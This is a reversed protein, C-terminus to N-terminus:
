NTVSCAAERCHRKHKAPNLKIFYERDQCCYRYIMRMDQLWRLTAQVKRVRLGVEQALEKILCVCYGEDDARFAIALLIAAAHPDSIEHRRVWTVASSSMPFTREFSDYSYRM